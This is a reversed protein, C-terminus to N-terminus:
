RVERAAIELVAAACTTPRGRPLPYRWITIKVDRKEIESARQLLLIIIITQIGRPPLPLPLPSRIKQKIKQMFGIIDTMPYANYDYVRAPDYNHHYIISLPLIAFTPIADADM